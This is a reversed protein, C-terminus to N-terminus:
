LLAMSWISSVFERHWSFPSWIFRCRTSSGQGSTNPLPVGMQDGATRRAKELAHYIGETVLVPRLHHTLVSVPMHFGNLPHDGRLGPGGGFLNWGM